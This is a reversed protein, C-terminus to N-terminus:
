KGGESKNPQVLAANALVAEVVKTLEAPLAYQSKAKYAEDAIKQRQAAERQEHAERDKPTALRHTKAFILEAANRRTVEVAPGATVNKEPNDLPVVLLPDGAPLGEEIGRVVQFRKQLDM